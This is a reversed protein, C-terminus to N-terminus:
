LVSGHPTRKSSGRLLATSRSTCAAMAEWCATSRNEPDIWIAHNDGHHYKENITHLTKGGDLSERMQVSMVIVRDPNKPDAIIQGYYMAGTNFENQRVWDGRILSRFVGGKSDAAEITAYVVNRTLRLFRSALAAWTWRRFGSKLKNWTAGADTSKYIASEPGGDILTFVHRRRQYAAAYVIDPNSPDLAVDVFGTNERGDDGSEL